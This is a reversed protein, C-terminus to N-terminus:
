VKVLAKRKGYPVILPTGYLPDLIVESKLQFVDEIM